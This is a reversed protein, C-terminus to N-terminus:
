KPFSGELLDQATKSDSGPTSFTFHYDGGLSNAAMVSGVLLLLWLLLVRRRRRYSWDALRVLLTPHSPGTDTTSSMAKAGRTPATATQDHLRTTVTRSM